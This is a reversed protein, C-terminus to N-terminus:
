MLHLHHRRIRVMTGAEGALDDPQASTSRRCRGLGRPSQCGIAASISDKHVDPESICLTVTTSM